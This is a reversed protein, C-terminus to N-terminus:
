GEDASTTSRWSRNCCLILPCLIRRTAKSTSAPSVKYPPRGWNVLGLPAFRVGPRRALRSRVLSRVQLFLVSRLSCRVEWGSSILSAFSALIRLAELRYTIGCALVLAAPVLVVAVRGRTSGRVKATARVPSGSIREFRPADKRVSATLTCLSQCSSLRQWRLYSLTRSWRWM